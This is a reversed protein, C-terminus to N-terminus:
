TTNGNVIQEKEVFSLDGMPWFSPWTDLMAFGM